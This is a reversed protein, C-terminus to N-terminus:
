INQKRDSTFIWSFFIGMFPNHGKIKSKSFNPMGQFIYFTLTLKKEWSYTVCFYSGKENKDQDMLMKLFKIMYNNFVNLILNTEAELVYILNM